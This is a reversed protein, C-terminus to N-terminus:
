DHLAGLVAAYGAIDVISDRHGPTELLRAIKLAILCLAVDDATVPKQLIASWLAATRAMNPAASGYIQGRAEVAKKAEDLISM